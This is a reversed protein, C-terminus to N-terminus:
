GRVTWPARDGDDGGRADIGVRRCRSRDDATLGGGSPEVTEAKGGAQDGDVAADPVRARPGHGLLHRIGSPTRQYVVRPAPKTESMRKEATAESPRRVAPRQCRGPQGRKRVASNWPLRASSATTKRVMWMTKATTSGNVDSPRVAASM